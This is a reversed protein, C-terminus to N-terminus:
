PRICDISVTLQSAAAAIGTIPKPNDMHAQNALGSALARQALGSSSPSPASATASNGIPKTM